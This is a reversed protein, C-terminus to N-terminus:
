RLAEDLTDATLVRATWTELQDTSAAHVTDLAAPSLPGFKLTLLQVLAEARGEARLMEATTVYAEEAQPGLRAFLDRMGGTPVKGATELYSLVAVFDEMGGPGDLVARLDGGWGQLDDALRANGAVIKLLWLAVRASPTLPRARLAPEDVVALDDLLFRFRPLYERVAEAAETDLDLLDLLRTPASWRRRRHHHVVVPIVAPLRTAGPQEVLYQDWIRVVYRLMRFAM